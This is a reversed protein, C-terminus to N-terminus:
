LEGKEVVITTSAQDSEDSANGNEKKGISNSPLLM